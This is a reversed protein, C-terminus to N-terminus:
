PAYPCPYFCYYPRIHVDVDAVNSLFCGNENGMLQISFKGCVKMATPRDLKGPTLIVPLLALAFAVRVRVRVRVRVGLGLGIVGFRVRVRCRFRM